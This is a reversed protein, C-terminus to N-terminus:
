CATRGGAQFYETVLPNGRFFLHVLELAPGTPIQGDVRFLKPKCLVQPTDPLVTHRALRHAANADSYLMRAGDLHTFCGLNIDRIAHVFRSKAPVRTLVEEMQLTKLGKKYTWLVELRDIGALRCQLSTQDDAVLTPAVHCTVGTKHKNDLDDRCFPRGRWHDEVVFPLFQDKAIARSYDPAVRCRCTPYLEALTLLASLFDHHPDPSHSIGLFPHFPIRWDAHIFGHRDFRVAKNIEILGEDDIVDSLAGCRASWDPAANRSAWCQVEPGTAAQECMVVLVWMTASKRGHENAFAAVYPSHAGCLVLVGDWGLSSILQELSHLSESWEPDLAEMDATGLMLMLPMPQSNLRELLRRFRKAGVAAVLDPHVGAVLRLASQNPQSPVPDPRPRRILPVGLGTPVKAM